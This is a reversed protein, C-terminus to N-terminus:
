FGLDSWLDESGHVPEAKPLSRHDHERVPIVELGCRNRIKEVYALPGNLSM